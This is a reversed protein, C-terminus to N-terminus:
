GGAKAEGKASGSVSASAKVNVDVSAAASVNAEVAAKLCVLLKAGGTTAASVLGEGQAAVGAGAKGLKEAAGLQIAAIKPLSVRLAAILKDLEASAKGKAKITVGPPDCKVEGMTKLSCNAQCSLDVKPPEFDGSCKPEKVTGKCGGSCQGKCEAQGKVECSASCTGSCTGSCSGEAKADCKGECTGECKGKTNKGECKGDCTGGCKGSFGAECSGSCSGSCTGKCEAGAEVRCGGECQGECSGSIEGGKCSAQLEGPSVAAGCEGYCENLADIDAYCKPEQIQVDLGGGGSAKLIGDIKAAVAGCVKKAGEGNNPEAKLEGDAVGIGKGLEACSAILDAELDITLKKFNYSAEMFGKAKADAKLSGFNGAAFEDCGGAADALDGAPGPLNKLNGCDLLLPAALTVLVAPTSLVKWPRAAM